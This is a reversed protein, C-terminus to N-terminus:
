PHHGAQEDRPVLAEVVLLRSGRRDQLADQRQRVVLNLPAVVIDNLPELASMVAQGLREEPVGVLEGIAEVGFALQRRGAAQQKTGSEGAFVGDLTGREAIRAHHHVRVLAPDAGALEPEHHADPGDALTM